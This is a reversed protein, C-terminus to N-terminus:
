RAATRFAKSESWLFSGDQYIAKVCFIYETSPRLGGIFQKLMSGQAVERVGGPSSAMMLKYREIQDANKTPPCWSVQLMGADQKRRSFSIWACPQTDDWANFESM